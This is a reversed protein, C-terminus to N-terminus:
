ALSPIDNEQNIMEFITKALVIREEIKLLFQDINNLLQMKKRLKDSVSKEALVLNILDQEAIMQKLEFYDYQNNGDM